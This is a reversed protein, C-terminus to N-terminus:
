RVLTVRRAFTGAPTQFRVYYTGSPLMRGGSDQGNWRVRHTGAAHFGRALTGVLRGTPDYVHLAINGGSAPVDFSVISFGTSPNPAAGRLGFGSIASGGADVTGQLSAAPGENGAFDVATVKYHWTTPSPDDTWSPSATNHVLTAPSPIFGPVASRYIRWYSLDPEADGDWALMNGSASYTVVLAEPAAPALNDVSYGQVPVADFFQLPVPTHARVFYTSWCIGSATSDCLTPVVASYLAEGTAPVTAVHDWTGPPTAEITGPALGDEVRRYISYSTITLPMGLQDNAEPNWRIRVKRGQDNGVDSVGVILFPPCVGGENVSGDCNDDFSNCAETADPHIAPNSDDCDLNGGVFGTPQVCAQFPAFSSDGHGDGDSDPFWDLADVANDDVVGNCDEDISNCFEVAGPHIQPNSDDCDGSNAVTGSPQLCTTIPSLPDGFGDADQDLYWTGGGAGNDVVGDCDEDVGDCNEAAGPYVAANTDNCDGPIPVFGAPPDCAVIFLSANGYGDADQDEFWTPADVAGSDVTGDCDDDVGNCVEVADPSISANSDDCDGSNAVYGAPQICAQTSVAPDGYGDQDADQYWTTQGAGGEDVAGDCDNDLGDCVEPAAPNISPSSDNCDGPTAVYFAPANCAVVTSTTTGYGDNDLDRYWTQGISGEDVAGDCDDDVGNCVEIAGPRISPNNDNCDGPNAVYGPPQSPAEVFVSSNGWGDNDLDQFWTAAFAPSALGLLSLTLLAPLLHRRAIM